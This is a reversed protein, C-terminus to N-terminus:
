CKCHFKDCAFAVVHLKAMAFKWQTLELVLGMSRDSTQLCFKQWWIRPGDNILLLLLPLLSKCAAKLALKLQVAAAANALLIWQTYISFDSTIIVNNQNVESSRMVHFPSSSQMMGDGTSKASWTLGVKSAQENAWLRVHLEILLAPWSFHQMVIKNARKNTQKNTSSRDSQFAHLLWRHLNEPQGHAVKVAAGFIVECSLSHCRSEAQLNCFAISSRTKDMLFSWHLSALADLQRQNTQFNVLSFWNSDHWRVLIGDIMIFPMWNLVQFSWAVM